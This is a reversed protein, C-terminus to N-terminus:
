SEDRTVVVKLACQVACQATCSKLTFKPSDYRLTPVIGYQVIHMIDHSRTDHGPVAIQRIMAATPATRHAHPSIMCRQM